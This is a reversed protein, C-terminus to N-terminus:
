KVEEKVVNDNITKHLWERFQNTLSDKCGIWERTFVKNGPGYVFVTKCNHLYEIVFFQNNEVYDYVGNLEHWTDTMIFQTIKDAEILKM